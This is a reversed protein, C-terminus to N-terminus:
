TGVLLALLIYMNLLLCVRKFDAYVYDDVQLEKAKAEYTAQMEQRSHISPVKISEKKMHRSKEIAAEVQPDQLPSIISSPRLNGIAEKKASNISDVIKPM